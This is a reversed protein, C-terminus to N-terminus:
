AGHTLVNPLVRPRFPPRDASTRFAPPRNSTAYVLYFVATPTARPIFLLGPPHLLSPFPRTPFRVGFNSRGSHVAQEQKSDVEEYGSAQSRRCADVYTFLMRPICRWRLDTVGLPSVATGNLEVGNATHPDCGLRAAEKTENATTSASGFAVPRGATAATNRSM